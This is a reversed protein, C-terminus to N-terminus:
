GHKLESTQRAVFGEDVEALKTNGVAIDVRSVIANGPSFSQCEMEGIGKFRNVLAEAVHFAIKSDNNPEGNFTIFLTVRRKGM